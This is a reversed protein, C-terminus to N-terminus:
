HFMRVFKPYGLLIIIKIIHNRYEVILFFLKYKIIDSNGQTVTKKNVVVDVKPFSIWM